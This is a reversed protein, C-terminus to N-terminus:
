ILPCKIVGKFCFGVQKERFGPFPMKPSDGKKKAGHSKSPEQCRSSEYRVSAFCDDGGLQVSEHIGLLKSSVERWQQGDFKRPTKKLDIISIVEVFISVHGRFLSWKLLSLEDFGVIISPIFWKSFTRIM